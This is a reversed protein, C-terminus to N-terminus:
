VIFLYSCSNSFFTLNFHISKKSVSKEVGISSTSTTKLSQTTTDKNILNEDFEFARMKPTSKKALILIDEKPATELKTLNKISSNGYCILRVKSNNM